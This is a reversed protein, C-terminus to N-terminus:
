KRRAHGEQDQGKEREDVDDRVVDVHNELNGGGGSRTGFVCVCVVCGVGVVCMCRVCAFSVCAHCTRVCKLV